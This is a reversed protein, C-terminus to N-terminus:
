LRRRRVPNLLYGEQGGRHARRPVVHGVRGQRESAARAGPFYEGESKWDAEIRDGVAYKQVRLRSIPVDDDSSEEDPTPPAAAQTARVGDRRGRCLLTERLRRTLVEKKVPEEDSSEAFLDRKPLSEYYSMVQVPHRGTKLRRAILPWAEVSAGLESVLSRLEATEEPTWPKDENKAREM